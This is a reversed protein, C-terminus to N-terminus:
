NYYHTYEKFGGDNDFITGVDKVFIDFFRELPNRKYVMGDSLEIIQVERLNLFRRTNPINKCIGATNFIKAIGQSVDQMTGDFEPIYEKLGYTGGALYMEIDLEGMNKYRSINGLVSMTFVSTNDTAEYIMEFDDYINESYCDIGLLEITKNKDEALVKEIYAIYEKSEETGEKIEKIVGEDSTYNIYDMASIDDSQITIGKGNLYIANTNSVIQDKYEIDNGQLVYYTPAINSLSNLVEISNSFNGNTDTLGGSVVIMDIDEDKIKSVVDTSENDINSLHAIKYGTFQRPIVKNEYTIHNVYTYGNQIWIFGILLGIALIPLILAGFNFRIRGTTKLRAM